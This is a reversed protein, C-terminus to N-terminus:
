LKEIRQVRQTVGCMLTYAITNTWQAVLDIPLGEGWLTVEDGIVCDIGRLDVTIMDMSVRGIIPAQKGNILVYAEAPVERPYGDGYGIGVVGMPMAENAQWTAGYGVTDGANLQKISILRSSLHMVPKLGLSQASQNLLPSAGYLMLGPRVWDAHVDPRTLVAASNAASLPLDEPWAIANFTALQTETKEDSPDDANAFHTMAVKLKLYNHQQIAALVDPVQDPHLGLRSMGSDVKIWCGLPGDLADLWELQKPHHIAVDLQHQQALSLQEPLCLGDLVLIAKTIGEVRLALGEEVRAVAFADVKRQLAHALSVAGHGYGLSKIVAMIKSQPACERVRSVNHLLAAHDITAWANNLPM